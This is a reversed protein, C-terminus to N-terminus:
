DPRRISFRVALRKTSTVCKVLRHKVCVHLIIILNSVLYSTYKSNFRTHIYIESQVHVTEFINLSDKNFEKHFHTLSYNFLLNFLNYRCLIIHGPLLPPPPMPPNTPSISYSKGGFSRSDGGILYRSCYLVSGWCGYWLLLLLRLLLLLQLLMMMM